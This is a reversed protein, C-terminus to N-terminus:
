CADPQLQGQVRRSTELATDKIKELLQRQMPSLHPETLGLSVLGHIVILADLVDEFQRDIDAM